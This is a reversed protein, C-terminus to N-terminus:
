QPKNTTRHATWAIEDVALWVRSTMTAPTTGTFALVDRHLHAQDAYGTDAAVGAAHQGAALRHVAHDFRVLKAARKPPLGLQTRFRSWLRKRSWGLEHALDDIRLRGRSSTIRNWAWAVERDVERGAALRRILLTNTLAFREQWSRAQSIQEQARTADHGWLKDLPVVVDDLEAPSIGLVAHATVPSLRVQVCEVAHGRVRIADHMFGAVLNGQQQRGSDTDVVHPGSGFELALTISPHPIVHVDAPDPGHHRFGAMTVGAWRSPHAPHVVEWRAM